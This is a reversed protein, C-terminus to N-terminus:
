GQAPERHSTMILEAQEKNIPGSKNNDLWNNDYTLTAVAEPSALLKAVGDELISPDRPQGTAAKFAPIHQGKAYKEGM